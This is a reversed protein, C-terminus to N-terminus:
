ENRPGHLRRLPEKEHLPEITVLAGQKVRGRSQIDLFGEAVLRDLSFVQVVPEQEKTSEGNEKYIQKIISKSVSSPNRVEHFTKNLEASNLEVKAFNVSEDKSQWE